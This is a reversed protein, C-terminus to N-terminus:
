GKVRRTPAPPGVVMLRDAVWSGDKQKTGLAFVSMGVGVRAIPMPSIMTVAVNDPIMITRTGGKYVMTVKGNAAEKVTGNTMRNPPVAALEKVTGNTMRNPRGGPGTTGMMYSGEGLGRLADPFIHIETATEAGNMGKISTIGVFSNPGFDSRKAPMRTYANAKASLTVSVPGDPTRIVLKSGSRSAVVGRVGAPPKAQAGLSVAVTFTLAASVAVNMWNRVM